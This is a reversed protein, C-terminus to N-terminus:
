GKAQQANIHKLREFPPLKELDAAAQARPVDSGPGRPAFLTELARVGEYSTAAAALANVQETPLRTQMARLVRNLRAERQADNAGLKAAEAKAAQHLKATEAAKYKALLGVVKQSAEAPAGLDKLFAGLEGFLPKFDEDDTALEVAFGEPLDLEGYDIDEPVSFDYEGNEPVLSESEARRAQEALLEQYHNKFGDLDPSGDDTRYDKPIFSLDPGTDPEVAVPPDAPPDAPAPDVQDGGAGAGPEATNRPIDTWKLGYKM